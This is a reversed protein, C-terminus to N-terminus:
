APISSRNLPLGAESLLDAVGIQDLFFAAAGLTGARDGLSSAVIPVGNLADWLARQRIEAQLPEMFADGFHTVSGGVVVIAPNMLNVVNAIAIGLWGAAERVTAIVAPDGRGAAAVLTEFTVAGLSPLADGDFSMAQRRARARVSRIIASESAMMYLCGRNGCGCLPGDPVVTVHGLEGAAGGSGVFPVGDLVFGAVIGSGAHIYALHHHENRFQHNGQWYEGLAAAKARNTALVPLQAKAELMSAIPVHQWGYPVSAIVERGVEDVLGPVGVGIGVIPSNAQAALEEVCSSAAAVFEEPSTGIRLRETTAVEGAHLNALVARCGDDLFQVGIVLRNGARFELVVQSRGRGPQHKGVEAIFGGAMLSAIAESVTAKSLGSRRVLDTRTTRPQLRLLEFLTAVSSRHGAAM